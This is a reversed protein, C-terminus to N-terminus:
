PLKVKRGTKVTRVEIVVARPFQISEALNGGEVCQFSQVLCVYEKTAEYLYGSSKQLLGDKKLWEDLNRVTHWGGVSVTDWWTVEVIKM